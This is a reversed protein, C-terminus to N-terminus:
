MYTVRALSTGETLPKSQLIELELKTKKKTKKRPFSGILLVKRAPSISDRCGAGNAKARSWQWSWFLDQRGSQEGRTSKTERLLERRVGECVSRQEKLCTFVWVSRVSAGPQNIDMVLLERESYWLGVDPQRYAHSVGQAQRAGLLCGPTRSAACTAPALLPRRDSRTTPLSQSCINGPGHARGPVKLHGMQGWAGRGKNLSTAWWDSSCRLVMANFHKFWAPQPYIRQWSLVSSECHKEELSFSTWLRSFLNYFFTHM